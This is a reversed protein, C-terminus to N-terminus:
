KIKLSIILDFNDKIVNDGLNDFFSGSGYKIGFQTRDITVNAKFEDGIIQAPFEIENTKDKITMEGKIRYENSQGSVETIMFKATPYTETDFFDGNKLHNALDDRDDHGEGKEGDNEEEEEEEDDDQMLETARITNMDAIFQGDMLLGNNFALQGSKLKIDGTHSGFLKHGKWQISSEDMDVIKLGHYALQEQKVETNEPKTETQKENKCAVATFMITLILLFQTIQNKM